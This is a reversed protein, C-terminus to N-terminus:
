IGYRNIHKKLWSPIPRQPEKPRDPDYALMGWTLENSANKTNIERMRQSFRKKSQAQYEEIDNKELREIIKIVEDRKRIWEPDDRYTMELARMSSMWSRITNNPVGIEKELQYASYGMRELKILRFKIEPFIHWIKPTRKM